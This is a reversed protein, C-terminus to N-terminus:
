KQGVSRIYNNPNEAESKALAILRAGGKKDAEAQAETFSAKAECIYAYFATKKAYQWFYEEHLVGEYHWPKMTLNYHVLKPTSDAQGAIPMKNWEAGFYYVKDKCILNLCDQDPAIVFDYSSLVDSFAQYFHIERLKILNMVIVGSNFYAEADIGLANKTYACFAPVAAVAQDAVAGIYNDGIDKIFLEAVDALLVTDCDLYIAKEYQPFLEPIFLRYYIADTYYDRCHLFNAICSIKNTVDEFFVSLNEDEYGKIKNANEGLEGTYLVHINYQYAKNKYEKLSELAVALYPLYHEDAAFFVPVIKKESQM